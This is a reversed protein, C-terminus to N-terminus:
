YIMSYGFPYIGFPEIPGLGRLIPNNNEYGGVQGMNENVDRLINRRLKQKRKRTKKSMDDISSMDPVHDTPNNIEIPIGSDFSHRSDNTVSPSDHTQREMNVIDSSLPASILEIANIFENKIKTSLGDGFGFRNAEELAKEPSSGNAVRWLAIALGTRDRGHICHVYVPQNSFLNIIDSKLNIIQQSKSISHFIPFIIHELGLSECISHIEFGIDQDLSVVRVVGWVDRLILLEDATPKGGRLIQPDGNIESVISFRAPM